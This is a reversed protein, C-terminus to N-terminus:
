ASKRISEKLWKADERLTEQTYPVPQKVRKSWVFLGACSGLVLLVAGIICTVKWGFLGLLAAALALNLGIFAVAACLGATSVVWLEKELEQKGEYKALQAEKQALESLDKATKKILDISTINPDPEM